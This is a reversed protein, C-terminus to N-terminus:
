RFKDFKVLDLYVRKSPKSITIIKNFACKPGIGSYKMYVFVKKKNLIMFKGLFGLEQLKYIIELIANNYNLKVRRVHGQKAVNLSAFFDSLAYNVIM